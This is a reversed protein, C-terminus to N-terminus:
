FMRFGVQLSGYSQAKLQSATEKSQHVFEVRSSFRERAYCIGWRQEFMWTEPGALVAGNGKSFLGGQLSANYAQVLISPYAYVFLEMKKKPAAYGNSVRTNFLVSRKNNEYSGICFIAGARANTFHTGLSAEAVPVLKIIDQLNFLTKAISANIDVGIANRVQYKWGEFRKFGFLKHYSNQLAEGLSANGVIGFSGGWQLLADKKLSNLQMYRAFLYGCYPRDIEDITEAKKSLPTFIKQGIEFSHIKKHSRSNDAIRFNLVIGNTYYADKIQLLFADNESTFLIERRLETNQQAFCCHLLLLCSTTLLFRM